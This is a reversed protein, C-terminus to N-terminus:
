RTYKLLREKETICLHCCIFNRVQVSVLHLDTDNVSHYVHYKSDDKRQPVMDIESSGNINKALEDRLENEHEKEEEIEANQDEM